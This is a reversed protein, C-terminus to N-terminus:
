NQYTFFIIIVVRCTMRLTSPRHLSGHNKASLTQPTLAATYPHLSVNSNKLSGFAFLINTNNLNNKIGSGISPSVLDYRWM